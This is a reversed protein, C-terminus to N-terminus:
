ALEALTGENPGENGFAFEDVERGSAGMAYGITRWYEALGRAADRTHNPYEILRGGARLEGGLDGLTIVPFNDYKSHHEHGNDNIYVIASQDLMSGDGEPTDELERILYALEGAIMDHTQILGQIGGPRQETAGQGHGMSHRGGFGWDGFTTHGPGISLVVINTLGCLLAGVANNVQLATRRGPGGIEGPMDPMCSAIHDARAVLKQQRRQFTEISYLYRELKWSEDGTVRSRAASVSRQISDLLLGQQAFAQRDDTDPSGAGFLEIWAAQPDFQIPLPSARDAACNYPTLGWDSDTAGLRVVPFVVNEDALARGLIADITPGGPSGGGGSYPMCSLAYYHARHGAFQGTGQKNALGNIAVMRERWPSWSEVMPLQEAVNTVDTIEAASAPLRRWDRFGYFGNGEIVIVLRKPPADGQAQAGLRGLLPSLFLGGAGLGLGQLFTRRGNKRTPAVRRREHFRNWSM